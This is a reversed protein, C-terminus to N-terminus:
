RKVVDHITLNTIITSDCGASSSLALHYIGSEYVMSGDPLIYGNDLCVEM